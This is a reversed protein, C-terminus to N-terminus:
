RIKSGEAVDKDPVLVSIVGSDEAALLMGESKVGAIDKPDLNVLCVVKKGQLEGAAYHGKIGAIITRTGVDAGFDVGLRFMPKRAASHDEVSRIMGVRLELKAFDDITAM